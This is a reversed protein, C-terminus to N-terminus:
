CGLRSQMKLNITNRSIDFLESAVKTKLGIRIRESTDGKAPLRLQLKLWILRVGVIM